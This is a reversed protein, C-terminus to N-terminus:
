LGIRNFQRSLTVSIGTSQVEYNGSTVDDHVFTAATTVNWHETWRWTAQLSAVGVTVEYPKGPPVEPNQYKTVSASAGLTWRASLTYTGNLGAFDQSGLYAFGTPVLQRSATASLMLLASQRTISASFVTGNQASRFRVPVLVIELGGPVEVIAEEYTDQDNIAHSYGAAASWSWMEQLQHVYGFQLNISKSQTTGDLSEYYGASMSATLKDHESRVWSLTPALSGYKYNSLTPAGVGEGYRVQQGGLDVDLEIRETLLRDWNLDALGTDRRVGASGNLLYDHYLSSDQMIAATIAFSGRENDFEAKATLHEYDSDLTNYGQRGGVRFSPDLKFSFADANYAFPTDLLLAGNTQATDPINLLAPNTTYDGSIGITPTVGWVGARSPSIWSMAALALCIRASGRQIM